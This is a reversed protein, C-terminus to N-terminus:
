MYLGVAVCFICFSVIKICTNLLLPLIFFPSGIACGLLQLRQLSDGTDYLRRAVMTVNCLPLSLFPSLSFSLSFFQISDRRWVHISTNQVVPKSLEKQFQNSKERHNTKMQYFTKKRDAKLNAKLRLNQMQSRKKEILGECVHCTSHM